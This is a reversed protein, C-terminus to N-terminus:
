VLLFAPEVSASENIGTLVMEWTSTRVPMVLPTLAHHCSHWDQRLLSNTPASSLIM